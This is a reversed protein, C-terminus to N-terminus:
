YGKWISIFVGSLKEVFLVISFSLVVEFMGIQGIFSLEMIPFLMPMANKEIRSSPFDYILSLPLM